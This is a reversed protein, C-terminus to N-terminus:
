PRRPAPAAILMRSMYLTRWLRHAVLVGLAGMRARSGPLRASRFIKPVHPVISFPMAATWALWRVAGFRKERTLAYHEAIVRRWRHLLDPWEPRALHTVIAAPAYGLRYGLARARFSWDMDESVGPRFGGVADFVERRTFLNGSGSYGEVLIYREFNFGFVVEWAEVPSPRAPDQAATDVRGGVFDYDGLAQVGREIWAADPKCDSDIFALISGSSAAVGANRAPGAGQIPAHVVRCGPAAAIVAELGCASNNDAVIVEMQGRPWTQGNLMAVCARLAVLDNYHPVIVSVFPLSVDRAAPASDGSIPAVDIDLM